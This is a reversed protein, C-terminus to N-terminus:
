FDATAQIFLYRGFSDYTQPWTNGNCQGTPCNNTSTLPPDKDLINNIGARITYKEMFRWSGAIDLYSRTSFEHDTPFQLGPNNLFKQNSYADLSVASYFRWTASVSLGQVPTEYTTRFQHRWKNLPGTGGSGVTTVANCVPGYLGACDYSVGNIPSFTYDKTYTGILAFDLRGAAHMDLRYAMDVDVGSTKVEGINQTTDIVYTNNTWLTGLQPSRHILGCTAPDLTYGCALKITDAGATNIANKIQINWYDVVLRFDPLFTPTFSFGFSYTDAREPTLKQNGGTLGNYQAAPAELVNGYLAKSVGQAACQAPSFSPTSGACPDITGDLVIAQPTYLEAINPVRVARNYSGRIAFDSIPAWELGFKYTNTNFGINYSSYRYGADFSLSKTYAADEIIPLHAEIFGEWVNFGGATPLIFAGQGAGQNEIYAEDPQFNMIQERWEAGVNLKLGGKASPLQVGYQGLDGTVDAHVVRELSQGNQLLPIGIYNTAGPSVQGPAFINWPVCAAVGNSCVPNAKSGVVLLANQMKIWSVDNRYTNSTDTLANSFYADYKWGQGIEGRGGIVLRFSTHILDQQRDGGEVNRRGIFIDAAPVSVTTGNPGPVNVPTTLAGNGCWLAVQQASLLPNNCNVLMGGIGLPDNPNGGYFAGSPAIQSVSEDRMVMLQGYMDFHENFEYHDYSGATWREDPRLFYNLAGYNFRDADTFPVLTGGPGVTNSGTRNFQNDFSTFRGPYSTSSGGCGADVWSDASALTCASYDYQSQIIPNQKKFTAYFEANGKGDPTNFGLIVSADKAFGTNISSDPLPFNHDIVAQAPEGGKQHHNYFGYNLQVEVGEFNHRMIFNVVGAAADAGYTSSAGGTLVEVREVLQAPIQNVDSANTGTVADGPGLRRGDVLVLTRASGLNRLNLEATGSSGNSIGGGQAAFIQPLQNLVDAINTKGTLAIDAANVSTVPSISELNPVAIRSGTVVIEGLGESPQAQAAPTQQALASQGAGVLSTVAGAVLANHVASRLKYNTM